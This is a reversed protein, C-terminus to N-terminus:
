RKRASLIRAGGLAVIGVAVLGIAVLGTSGAESNSADPGGNGTKAPAAVPAAAAATVQARIEGGANASTHVNVYLTGAKLATVLGAFNGALSGSLDAARATGSVNVTSAPSGTPAAFLLLVVGGNAGAAGTHIHAATANTIAPVSLTWTLTGAAEDLTATFTGTATTTVPPVENAGSLRAEYRSTTAQGLVAAPLLAATM